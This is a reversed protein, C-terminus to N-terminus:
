RGATQQDLRPMATGLEQRPAASSGPELCGAAASCKLARFEPEPAARRFANHAPPPPLRSCM